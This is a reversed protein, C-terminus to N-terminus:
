QTHQYPDAVGKEWAAASTKEGFVHLSGCVGQVDKKEAKREVM